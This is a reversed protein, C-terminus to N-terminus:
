SALVTPSMSVERAITSCTIVLEEREKSERRKRIWWSRKCSIRLRHQQIMRIIRQISAGKVSRCTAKLVWLLIEMKMRDTIGQSLTLEERQNRERSSLLYIMKCLWKLSYTHRSSPSKSVERQERLISRLTFSFFRLYKKWSARTQKSTKSINM